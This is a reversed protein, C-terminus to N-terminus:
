HHWGVIEDETMGKEEQMLTKGFSDATQMVHGFYLLKLKLMLGESSLGTRLTLALGLIQDGRTSICGGRLECGKTKM